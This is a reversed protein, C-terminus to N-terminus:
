APVAEVTSGGAAVPESRPVLFPLLMTGIVLLPSAIPLWSVLPLLILPGWLRQALFAAPVILTALYHDWLLPVLLLSACLMVMYGIERDRRLSYLLAATAVAVGGWRALWVAGDSGGLALALAGLDRNESAGLPVSLNGLVALYDLYGTTGVFPLTLLVLGLGAAVTWMAARWRRRLLQWLLFIGLSPRVSIAAAMVISGVPRDLWRWAMVMPLILPMSVNGLVPDKLGPLSFALVTFALARLLLRVPMIACALFMAIVHLAWWIASGDTLPLDTFPLMAVGLPPAYYFLNAPGPEFPGAVLDSAYLSGEDVLRQAANVYAALDFAWAADHFVWTDDIWMGERYRVFLLLLWFLGLGISVIAM